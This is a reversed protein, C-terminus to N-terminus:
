EDLLELIKANVLSTDTEPESNDILNHPFGLSAPFEYRLVEAGWKEWIAAMELTRENNVTVDNGNTVIILNGVAPDTTRAQRFVSQEFIMAQAVGRSSMGPYADKKLSIWGPPVFNLNPFRIALKMFFDNWFPSLHDLGFMPSVIMVREVDQRNQAIWSAVAGGVSFGVVHVDEGLGDAIDIVEDAYASLEEPRMKKLESVDRSKLGHHPLRVILVNHRREYLLKGLELFQAPSNAYGHILVYVKDTKEGHDLLQSGASESMLRGQERELIRKFRRLADDYDKAPDPKSLLGPIKVPTLGLVIAIGLLILLILGFLGSGMKLFRKVANENPGEIQVSM